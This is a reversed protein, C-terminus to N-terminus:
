VSSILFPNITGNNNTKYIQGKGSNKITEREGFKYIGKLYEHTTVNKCILLTHFGLLMGIMVLFILCFPVAISIHLRQKLSKNLNADEIQNVEFIEKFLCYESFVILFTISILFFIFDLYNRAGICTGLWVCHHDFGIICAKCNYCHSCRSPPRYINCETCYRLPRFTTSKCDRVM